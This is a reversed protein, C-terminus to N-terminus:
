KKDRSSSAAQSATILLLLSKLEAPTAPDVPAPGYRARAVITGVNRIAKEKEPFAEAVRGTYALPGEWTARPIGRQAMNRCFAAYLNEVPSVPVRRKMAYHFVIACLAVAILCTMVLAFAPKDGFGLAQALRSQATPDYSLVWDDWDTEIQERRLQVEQLSRRAWAPLYTEAFTPPSPAIQLGTDDRGNQKDTNTSGPSAGEGPPLIGTPDIRMWHGTRTESGPQDKADIWVEDWAHANSQKVTYINKYPNYDAGRYGVVMRAPVHELRMMIAFASAFHECFGTKSTFMFDHLWRGGTSYVGPTASYTFHEQRFYHLVARIYDSETASEARLRRALARTSKDIIDDPNTKADTSTPLQLAADREAPTLKQDNLTFSSTVQYRETHDVKSYQGALQLIDGNLVTAWDGPEGSMSSPPTVPFDLAFLWKQFHPKVTIEQHILPSGKPATPQSNAPPADGVTWAGNQYHWLVLGRWYMTDVTPIASDLFSVYLATSNDQSLSAIDGPKIVNTFGLASEGLNVQLKGQYRPVGFFLLITLPLAQLFVIGSWRLMPLLHDEPLDGIQLRRLLATLVWMMILCYIFLEIVQSYLLSCMVVFFGAFIILALDRPGRIEYFKIALLGATLAVGPDRGFVTHYQLLIGGILCVAILSCFLTSPLPLRRVEMFCRIGIALVVAATLWVPLEVVHPVLTLLFTGALLFFFTLSPRVPLPAATSNAPSSWLAM